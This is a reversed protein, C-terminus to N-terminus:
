RIAYTGRTVPHSPDGQIRVAKGTKDDRTVLISCTDPCDHPCAMHHISHGKSASFKTSLTM